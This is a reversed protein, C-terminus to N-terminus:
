SKSSGSVSDQGPVNFHGIEGAVGHSGRFLRGDLILGGGLGSEM